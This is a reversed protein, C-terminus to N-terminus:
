ICNQDSQFSYLIDVFTMEYWRLMGQYKTNPRDTTVM